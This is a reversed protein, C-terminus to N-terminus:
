RHAKGHKRRAFGLLALAGCLLLGVSAPEPICISVDGVQMPTGLGTSYELKLQDSAVLAELEAISPSPDFLVGLPLDTYNLPETFSAEGVVNQGASFFVSPATPLSGTAAVVETVDARYLGPSLLAWSWINNVSVTFMGDIPNYCAKATQDAAPGPDYNPLDTEASSGDNCVVCEAEALGVGVSLVGVAGLMALRFM